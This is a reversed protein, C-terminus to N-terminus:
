FGVIELEYDSSYYKSTIFFTFSKTIENLYHGEEDLEVQMIRLYFGYKNVKSFTFTKQKRKDEDYQTFTVQRISNRIIDSHVNLDFIIPIEVYLDTDNIYKYFETIGIPIDELGTNGLKVLYIDLNSDPLAQLYSGYSLKQDDKIKYCNGWSKGIGFVEEISDECGEKNVVIAPYMDNHNSQFVGERKYVKFEPLDMYGNISIKRNSCSILLTTILLLKLLNKITMIIKGLRKGVLPDM